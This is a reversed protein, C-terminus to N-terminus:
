VSRAKRGPPRETSLLHRLWLIETPSRREFDPAVPHLLLGVRRQYSPERVGSDLEKPGSM